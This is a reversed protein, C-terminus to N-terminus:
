MGHEHLWRAADVGPGPEGAQFAQNDHGYQQIKGTRVLVVDGQEVTLKARELCRRADEVTVEYGDELREVGHLGAADLLIGRGIIPPITEAGYKTWGCETGLDASTLGGHG